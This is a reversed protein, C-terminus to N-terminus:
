VSKYDCDGNPKANCLKNYLYSSDNQTPKKLTLRIASENINWELPDSQLEPTSSSGLLRYKANKRLFHYKPRDACLPYADAIYISNLGLKPFKDRWEKKIKLPDLFNKDFAFISEINGRVEQTTFGTWVKAYEIIEDNTYTLECEGDILVKTGDQNLKCLGISYLQMIERAFNEDPFIVTNSEEYTYATSKSDLYSLNEAMVPNFSIERLIDRYSKFANRVLTDPYALRMETLHKNEISPSAITVIQSLAWAQRQRLQDPANLAIMEMITKRAKANVGPSSHTEYTVDFSGHYLGGGIKADNAVEGFSGCIVVPKKNFIKKRLEREVSGTGLTTKSVWTFLITDGMGM